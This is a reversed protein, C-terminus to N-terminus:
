KQKHTDCYDCIGRIVLCPLQNMLGAAEMEFCIIDLERAISDWTKANKMVQNGSAILGYHIYSETTGRPERDVLQSEDCRSCDPYRSPHDYASNFHWDKDPRSFQERLGQYNQLTFSIIALCGNNITKGYDYQIVGGSTGSSVSVVVDGLRIEVRFPQYSRSLVTTASTSGCAGSPLRGLTYINTTLRRNLFPNM